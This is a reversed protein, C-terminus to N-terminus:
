NGLAVEDPTKLDMTMNMDMAIITTLEQGGQDMTTEVNTEMVMESSALYGGTIDFRMTGEGEGTMEMGSIMPSDGTTEMTMTMETAIVAIDHGEVQEIGTLTYDANVEVIMMSGPMNPMPMEQTFTQNWSENVRVGEEPFFPQIQSLQSSLDGGMGSMMEEMGEIERVKGSPEMVMIPQMQQMTRMMEAMEPNSSDMLLSDGVYVQVDYEKYSIMMRAAGDPLVENVDMDIGMAMDFRMDSPMMARMMGVVSEDGRYDMKMDSEIDIVYGLSQDQEFKYVLVVPEGTPEPRSEGDGGCAALVFVSSLLLVLSIRRLMHDEVPRKFGAM